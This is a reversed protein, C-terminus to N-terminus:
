TSAGADGVLQSLLQIGLLKARKPGELLGHAGVVRPPHHRRFQEVDGLHEVRAAFGRIDEVGDHAVRAGSNARVHTIEAEVVLVSAKGLNQGGTTDDGFLKSGDVHRHARSDEANHGGGVARRPGIVMGGVGVDRMHVVHVARYLGFSDAADEAGRNTNGPAGDAREEHAVAVGAVVRM